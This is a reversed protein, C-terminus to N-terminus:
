KLLLGGILPLSDVFEGTIPLGNLLGRPTVNSETSPQRAYIPLSPTTETASDPVLGFAPAEAQHAQEHVPAAFMIPAALTTTPAALALVTITSFHM